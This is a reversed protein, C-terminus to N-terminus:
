VAFTGRRERVMIIRRGVVIRRVKRASHPPDLVDARDLLDRAIVEAGAVLKLRRALRRLEDAFGQRAAAVDAAMM